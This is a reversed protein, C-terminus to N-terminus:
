SIIHPYRVNYDQTHGCNGCKHKFTPPNTMSVEGTPRMWDQGCNPCKQDLQQSQVNRIESM